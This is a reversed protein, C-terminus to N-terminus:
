AAQKKQYAQNWKELREELGDYDAAIATSHLSAQRAREIANIPRRRLHESQSDLVYKRLRLESQIQYVKYNPLQRNHLDVAQEYAFIMEKLRHVNVGNLIRRVPLTLHQDLRVM